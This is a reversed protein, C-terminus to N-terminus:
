SQSRALLNDLEDLLPMQGVNIKRKATAVDFFEARDIEPFEITRGSRPPWAMRVTNGVVSSPDCEGPFAWAHVTKGGKQKVPALAHFPGDPAFGLEEQFERRACALLEEEPVVEGKPISWAGEDKNTFFPGGPHVLLVELMGDRRRYMLLGASVRPM